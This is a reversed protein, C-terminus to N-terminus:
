PCANITSGNLTISANAIRRVTLAGPGEDELLDSAAELLLSGVSDLQVMPAPYHPRTTASTM